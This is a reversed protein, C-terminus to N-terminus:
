RNQPYRYVAKKTTLVEKRHKKEFELKGVNPISIAFKIGELFGKSREVIQVAEEFHVVELNMGTALTSDRVIEGSPAFSEYFFTKPEGGEPEITAVIATESENNNIENMLDEKQVTRLNTAM